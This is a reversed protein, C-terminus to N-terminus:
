FTDDTIGTLLVNANRRTCMFACYLFLTATYRDFGGERALIAGDEQMWEWDSMQGWLFSPMHLGYMRGSRMHDDAFIPQGDFMIGSMGGEYKITNVIRHRASLTQVFRDRVGRTTLWVFDASDALDTATAQGVSSKATRLTSESLGGGVATVTAVWTSYVNPDIGSVTGSAAVFSELGRYAQNWDNNPNAITSTSCSLVWGDTTATLGTTLAPSVTITRNARDVSIVKRAPEIVVGTSITIGDIYMGPEIRVTTDVDIVTQAAAENARILALTGSGDGHAYRSAQSRCGTITRDLLQRLTARGGKAALAKKLQGTISFPGYLHRMSEVAVAFEDDSSNPLRNNEKRAGGPSAYQMLLRVKATENEMDVIESSKKIGPFNTVDAGTHTNPNGDPATDSGYLLASGARAYHRITGIADNLLEVGHTATDSM